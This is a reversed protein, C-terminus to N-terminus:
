SRLGYVLCICSFTYEPSLTMCNFFWVAHSYTVRYILQQEETNLLRQMTLIPSNQYRSTHAWFVQFEEKQRKEMDHQFKRKPFLDAFHGNALSQKVFPLTLSKRRDQLNCPSGNRIYWNMHVKSCKTQWICSSLSKAFSTDFSLQLINLSYIHSNITM